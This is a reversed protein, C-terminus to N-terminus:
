APQSAGVSTTHLGLKGLKEEFKESPYIYHWNLSGVSTIDICLKM